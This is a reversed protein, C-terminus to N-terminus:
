RREGDGSSRRALEDRAALLAAADAGRGASEWETALQGLDYTVSNGLALRLTRGAAPEDLSWMSAAFSLVVMAAVGLAGAVAGALRATFARSRSPPTADAPPAAGLSAARDAYSGHTGGTGFLRRLLGRRAGAHKSLSLPIGNERHLKELARLYVAPEPEARHAIADARREGHSAVLKVLVAAPLAVAIDLLLLPVLGVRDALLRNTGLMLLAIDGAHRGVVMWAGETLHAVEHTCIATLEADDLHALASRTAVIIGSTPFAFANVIPLDIEFAAPVRTGCRAAATRVAALLRESGPRVIRTVRMLWTMGGFWLSVFAVFALGAVLWSRVDPAPGVLLLMALVLPLRCFWIALFGIAKLRQVRTPKNLKEDKRFRRAVWGSVFIAVVAAMGVVGLCPVYALEDGFLAAAAPILVVMAVRNRWISHTFPYNLRAAEDSSLAGAKRARKLPRTAIAATVWTSVGAIVAAAPVAILVNAWPIWWPLLARAAAIPDSSV